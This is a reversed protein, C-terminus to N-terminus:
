LEIVQYIFISSQKVTTMAGSKPDRCLLLFDTETLYLNIFSFPNSNHFYLKTIQTSTEYIWGSINDTLLLNTNSITKKSGNETRVIEIKLYKKM